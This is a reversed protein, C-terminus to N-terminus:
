FSSCPHQTSFFPCFFIELYSWRPIPRAAPQCLRAANRCVTYYETSCNAQEQQITIEGLSSEPSRIPYFDMLFEFSITIVGSVKNAAAQMDSSM